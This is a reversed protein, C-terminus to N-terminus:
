AAALEDKGIKTGKQRPPQATKAKALAAEMEEFADIEPQVITRTVRAREPTPPLITPQLIEILSLPRRNM